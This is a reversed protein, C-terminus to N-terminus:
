LLIVPVTFFLSYVRYIFRFHAAIIVSPMIISPTPSSDSETPEALSAKGSIKRTKNPPPSSALLIIIKLTRIGRIATATLTPMASAIAPHTM